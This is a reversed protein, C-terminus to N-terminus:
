DGLDEAAQRVQWDRDTLARALAEDVEPGDFAALAVVARRRIAPKDRTAALVAPLGREDGIAGLAAVASERCLAAPHELAVRALADVASTEGREGLAFCAAEVVEAAPDGLLAAPSPVRPLRAAVLCARRRVAPDSDGLGRRLDDDGLAGLRALAALATARVGPDPDGLYGRAADADGQHGSRAAAMRREAPGSSSGASRPALPDLTLVWSWWGDDSGPRLRTFPM